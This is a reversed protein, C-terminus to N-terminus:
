VRRKEPSFHAKYILNRIHLAKDHSKRCCAHTSYKQSPIYCILALLLFEADTFPYPWWTTSTHCCFLKVTRVLVLTTTLLHQRVAQLSKVDARVTYCPPPPPPPSVAIVVPVPPQMHSCLCQCLRSDHPQLEAIYQKFCRHNTGFCELSYHTMITSFSNTNMNVKSGAVGVHRRSQVATFLWFM